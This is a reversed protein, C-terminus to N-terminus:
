NIFVFLKQILDVVNQHNVAVVIKIHPVSMVENFSHPWSLRTFVPIVSNDALILADQELHSKQLSIKPFRVFIQNGGGGHKTTNSHPVVLNISSDIRFNDIFHTWHKVFEFSM